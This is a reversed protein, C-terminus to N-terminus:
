LKIFPYLKRFKKEGIGKVKLLEYVSHFPRAAIIRAATAEGIGPLLVLSDVPATNLSIVGSFEAKKAWGSSDTQSYAKISDADQAALVGCFAFILITSKFM